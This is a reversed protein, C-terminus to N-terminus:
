RQDKLRRGLLVGATSGLLAAAPITLLLWSGANWAFMAFLIVAPICLAAILRWPEHTDGRVAYMAGAAFAVFTLIMSPLHEIGLGVIAIALVIPLAAGLLIAPM